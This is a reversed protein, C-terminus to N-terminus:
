DKAAEVDCFQSGPPPKCGSYYKDKKICLCGRKCKQTDVDKGACQQFVDVGSSEGSPSDIENDAAFPDIESDDPEDTLDDYDHTDYEDSSGQDSNVTFTETKVMIERSAGHSIRGM